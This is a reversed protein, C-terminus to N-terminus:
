APLYGFAASEALAAGALRQVARRLEAPEASTLFTTRGPADGSGAEAPRTM